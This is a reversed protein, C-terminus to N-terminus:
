PSDDEKVMELWYGYVPTGDLGDRSPHPDHAMEKKYYVVAHHQDPFRYSKGSSIWYGPLTEGDELKKHKLEYGKDYLWQYAAIYWHNKDEMFNPVKDIPLELISAICATFCNGTMDNIVTQDVPKM